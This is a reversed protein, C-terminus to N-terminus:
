RRASPSRSTRRGAASTPSSSRRDWASSPARPAGCRRAPSSTPERRAEALEACVEALFGGGPCGGRGPVGCTAGAARECPPSGRRWMMMPVGSAVAVKYADAVPASRPSGALALAALAPDSDFSAGLAAQHQDDRGCVCVVTEGVPRGDLQQWREAWAAHLSPEEHRELPRVVVHQKRGLSFWPFKPWLSLDPFGEDLAEEPLILEILGPRGVGGMIEIQGPLLESLRRVAAPLPLAESEAAAPVIDEASRFRWV